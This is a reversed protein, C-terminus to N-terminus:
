AQPASDLVNSRRLKEAIRARAAAELEALLVDLKATLPKLKTKAEETLHRGTLRYDAEGYSAPDAEIADIAQELTAVTTLQGISYERGDITYRTVEATTGYRHLEDRVFGLFQGAEDVVRVIHTLGDIDDAMPAREAGYTWAAEDDGQAANNRKAIARAQNYTFFTALVTTHTISAM